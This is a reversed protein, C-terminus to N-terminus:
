GGGGGLWKILLVQRDLRTEAAVPCTHLIQRTEPDVHGSAPFVLHCASFKLLTSTKSSKEQMKHLFCQKVIITGSGIIM